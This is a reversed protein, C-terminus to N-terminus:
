AKRQMEISRISFGCKQYFAVAADNQPYVGLQLDTCGFARAIARVETMMETGIGQGRVSEEVCFEDVLLITRNVLGPIDRNQRIRLLVYGVITNSQKAVYLERDQIAQAFREQPYLEEPMRYIDPRWSVHLAHVQCALRNVSARDAERALELM